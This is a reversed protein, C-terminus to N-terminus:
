KVHPCTAIIVNPFHRFRKWKRQRRQPNVILTFFLHVANCKRERAASLIKEQALYSEQALAPGIFVVEDAERTHLAAGDAESAVAVSTIGLERCARIIRVAIEGRNAILLRQIKNTGERM